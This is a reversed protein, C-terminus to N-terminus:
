RKSIVDRGTQLPHLSKNLHMIFKVAPYLLHHCRFDVSIDSITEIAALSTLVQCMGRPMKVAVISKAEYPFIGTAEAKM